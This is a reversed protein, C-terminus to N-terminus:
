EPLWWHPPSGSYFSAMRM